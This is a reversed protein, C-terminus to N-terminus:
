RCAGADLAIVADGAPEMMASGAFGTLPCAAIRSTTTAINAPAAYSSSFPGITKWFPSSVSVSESSMAAFVSGSPLCVEVEARPVSTTRRGASPVQRKMM